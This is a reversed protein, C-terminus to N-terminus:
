FYDLLKEKNDQLKGIKLHISLILVLVKPNIGHAQYHGSEKKDAPNMKPRPKKDHAGKPRGAKRKPQEAQKM